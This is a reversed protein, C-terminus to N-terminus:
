TVIVQECHLGANHGDVAQDLPFLTVVSPGEDCFLLGVQKSQIFAWSPGAQAYKSAFNDGPLIMRGVSTSIDRM